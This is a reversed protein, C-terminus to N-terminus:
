FVFLCFVKFVCGPFNRLLHCTGLTYLLTFAPLNMLLVLPFFPFGHSGKLSPQYKLLASKHEMRIYYVVSVSELIVCYPSAGYGELSNGGYDPIM